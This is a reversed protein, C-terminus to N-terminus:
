GGDEPQTVEPEDGGESTQTPGPDTEVQTNSGEPLQEGGNSKEPQERSGEGCAGAFGAGLMLAALVAPIKRNM